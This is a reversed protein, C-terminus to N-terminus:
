LQAKFSFDKTLLCWCPRNIGRTSSHQAEGWTFQSTQHLFDQLFFCSLLVFTIIIENGFNKPALHRRGCCKQKPLCFVLPSRFYVSNFSCMKEQNPKATTTKQHTYKSKKKKLGEFILSQFPNLLAFPQYKSQCKIRCSM